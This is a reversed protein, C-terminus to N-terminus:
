PTAKKVNSPIKVLWKFVPKMTKAQIAKEKECDGCLEKFRPDAEFAALQENSDFLWYFSIEEGPKYKKLCDVLQSFLNDLQEKPPIMDNESKEYEARPDPLPNSSGCLDRCSDPSVGSSSELSINYRKSPERHNRSSQIANSTHPQVQPENERRPAAARTPPGAKVEFNWCVQGIVRVRVLIACDYTAM